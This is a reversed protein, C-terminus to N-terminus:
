MQFLWSSGGGSLTPLYNGDRARRPIAWSPNPSEPLGAGCTPICLAIRRFYFGARPAAGVGLHEPFDGLGVAEDGSPPGSRGARVAVTGGSPYIDM